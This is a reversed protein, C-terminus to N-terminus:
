REITLVSDLGTLVFVRDLTPDPSRVAFRRGAAVAAKHARVLAAVGSSDCYGVETLDATLSVAGTELERQVAASFRAASHYDLAGELALVVGHPGTGATITLGSGSRQDSDM